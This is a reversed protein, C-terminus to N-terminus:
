CMDVVCICTCTALLGKRMEVTFLNMRSLVVEDEEVQEEGQKKVSSAGSSESAPSQIYLYLVVCFVLHIYYVTSVVNFSFFSHFFLFLRACLNPYASIIELTFLCRLTKYVTINSGFLALVYYM